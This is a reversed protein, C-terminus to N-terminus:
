WNSPIKFNGRDNIIISVIKLSLVVAVTLIVAIAVIVINRKSFFHFDKKVNTKQAAGSVSVVDNVKAGCQTCFAAGEKLENGCQTCYM